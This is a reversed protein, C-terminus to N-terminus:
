RQYVWPAYSIIHLSLTICLKFYPSTEGPYTRNRSSSRDSSRNRKHSGEAQEERVEDGEDNGLKSDGDIDHSLEVELVASAAPQQM